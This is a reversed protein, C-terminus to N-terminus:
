PRKRTGKPVYDFFKEVADSTWEARLRTRKEARRLETLLMRNLERASEGELSAEVQFGSEIPKIKGKEGIVQRLVPEVAAPSDSSVTATLKFTRQTM